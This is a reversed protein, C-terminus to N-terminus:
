KLSSSMRISQSPSAETRPLPYERYVLNTTRIRTRTATTTRTLESEERLKACDRVLLREDCLDVADFFFDEVFRFALFALGVRIRRM